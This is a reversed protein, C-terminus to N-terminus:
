RRFPHDSPMTSILHAEVLNKVAGARVDDLTIKRKLQKVWAPVEEPTLQWFKTPAPHAMRLAILELSRQVQPPCQGPVLYPKRAVLVETFLEEYDLSTKKSLFDWATPDIKPKAGPSWSAPEPDVPLLTARHLLAHGVMPVRGPGKLLKQGLPPADSLQTLKHVFVTAVPTPEGSFDKLIREALADATVDTALCAMAAVVYCTSSADRALWEILQEATVEHDKRAASLRGPLGDAEEDSFPIRLDRVVQRAAKNVNAPLPKV